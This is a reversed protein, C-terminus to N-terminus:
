SAINKNSINLMQNLVFSGVKTLSANDALEKISKDLEHKIKLYKNGVVMPDILQKMYLEIHAVEHIINEIYDEIMWNHKPSIAVIGLYQKLTSAIFDSEDIILFSTILKKISRGYDDSVCTIKDISKKINNSINKDKRRIILNNLDKNNLLIDNLIKKHLKTSNKIYIIDIYDDNLDNYCFKYHLNKGCHRKWLKILSDVTNLDYGIKFLQQKTM